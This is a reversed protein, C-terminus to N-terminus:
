KKKKAPAKRAVPKKDAPEPPMNSAVPVATKEVREVKTPKDGQAKEGLLALVKDLKYGLTEIQRKMEGIEKSPEAKFAPAAPVNSAFPRRDSFRDNSERPAVAPGGNAAFCEKCYVPKKGNPKFPVECSKGCSACTAQFMELPRGFSKGGGKFGGRDGGFSPRGFDRRGGGFGGQKKFNNM